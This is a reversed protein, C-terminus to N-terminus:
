LVLWGLVKAVLLTVIVGTAFGFWFGSTRTLNVPRCSM